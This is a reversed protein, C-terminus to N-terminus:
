HGYMYNKWNILSLELGTETKILVWRILDGIKIYEGTDSYTFRCLGNYIFKTVFQPKCREIIEIEM